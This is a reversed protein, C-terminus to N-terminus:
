WYTFIRKLNRIEEPFDWLGVPRIMADSYTSYRITDGASYVRIAGDRDTRLTTLGALKDLTEPHPHGYMNDAGVSIM